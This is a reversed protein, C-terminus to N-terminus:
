ILTFSHQCHIEEFLYSLGIKLATIGKFHADTTNELFSTYYNRAEKYDGKSYLVDGLAMAAFNKVQIM